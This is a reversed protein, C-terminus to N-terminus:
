FDLGQDLSPTPGCAEVLADIFVRVKAPVSRGRVYVANLTGSPLVHENPVPVLAGGRLHLGAMFTSLIVFGLGALAAEQLMECNNYRMRTRVSYSRLEGDGMTQWLGKAERLTYILGDRERREDPTRTEGRRELYTPSACAPQRCDPDLRAM